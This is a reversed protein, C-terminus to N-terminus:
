SNTQMMENLTGVNGHGKFDGKGRLYGLLRYSFANPKIKSVLAFLVFIKAESGGRLTLCQLQFMKLLEVLIKASIHPRPREERDFPQFNSQASLLRVEERRTLSGGM